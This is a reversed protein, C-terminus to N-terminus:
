KRRKASPDEQRHKSPPTRVVKAKRKLWQYQEESMPIGPAPAERTRNAFNEGPGSEDPIRRPDFTEGPGATGTKSQAHSSEDTKKPGSGSRSSNM